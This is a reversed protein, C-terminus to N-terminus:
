SRGEGRHTHLAAMASGEGRCKRLRAHWRGNGSVSMEDIYPGSKPFWGRGGANRRSTATTRVSVLPAIFHTLDYNHPPKLVPGIDDDAGPHADM